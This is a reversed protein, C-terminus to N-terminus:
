VGNVKKWEEYLIGYDFIDNLRGNKYLANRRIGEKCFGLKEGIRQMGINESSTGFYIKILGLQSFGHNILLTAAETAYGRGWYEKEGVLFAIEANRNILDVKQLSINGIHKNDHKEDIALVINCRNACIDNVYARLEDKTVPFCHHSNFKCVEADNLWKSYNGEIDKCELARLGINNTELFYM